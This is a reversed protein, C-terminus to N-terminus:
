SKICANYFQTGFRTSQAYSRIIQPQGIFEALQLADQVVSHNEIESYVNVDTLSGNSYLKILGLRNLNELYSHIKEPNTCDARFSVDSFNEMVPSHSSGHNAVVHLTPFHQGKIYKLIKAEDTNLQRIIEVYSPHAGDSTRSNMASALLNTFMDRLEEKDGAFRMSEITPGAISIDPTIIDDPSVDKLKEELTTQLYDAIKEYGWILASVPALAVHILKSVTHLGKGIEQTAPQLLDQYIPVSEALATAAEITEKIKNPNDM